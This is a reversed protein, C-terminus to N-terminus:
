ESTFLLEKHFMFPHCCGPLYVTDICHTKEDMIKLTPPSMLQDWKRMCCSSSIRTSTDTLTALQNVVVVSQLFLAIEM